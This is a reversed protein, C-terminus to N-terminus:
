PTVEWPSQRLTLLSKDSNLDIKGHPKLSKSIVENEMSPMTSDLSFTSNEKLHWLGNEDKYFLELAGKPLLWENNNKLRELRETEYQVDFEQPQPFKTYGQFLIGIFQCRQAHAYEQLANLETKRDDIAIITDLDNLQNHNCAYKLFKHLAVVKNHRKYTDVKQSKGAYIVGDIFDPFQNKSKENLKTSPISNWGIKFDLKFNKHEKDYIEHASTKNGETDIGLDENLKSTLVACRIGKDQLGKVFEPLKQEVLLKIHNRYYTQKWKGINNPNKKDFCLIKLALQSWQKMDGNGVEPGYRYVLTNDEDFIGITKKADFTKMTTLQDIIKQMDDVSDAVNIGYISNEGAMVNECEIVVSFLALLMSIKKSM